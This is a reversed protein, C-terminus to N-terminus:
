NDKVKLKFARVIPIAAILINRIYEAVDVPLFQSWAQLSELAILLIAVQFSALKWCDRWNDILTLNKM